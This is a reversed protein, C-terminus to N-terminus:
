KKFKKLFLKGDKTYTQNDLNINFKEIGMELLKTAIGKGQYLPKVVIFVNGKKERFEPIDINYHNLTGVLQGKRYCLLCSVYDEPEYLYIGDKRKM